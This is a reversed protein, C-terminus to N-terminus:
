SRHSQRSIGQPRPRRVAIALARRQPLDDGGLTELTAWAATGDRVTIVEFGLRQLTAELIRATVADDDAILIKM